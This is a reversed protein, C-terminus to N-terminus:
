STQKLSNALAEADKKLQKKIRTLQNSAWKANKKFFKGIGSPKCGNRSLHFIITDQTSLSEMLLDLLQGGEGDELYADIATRDVLAYSPAEMCVSPLPTRNGSGVMNGNDDLEGSAGKFCRSRKSTLIEEDPLECERHRVAKRIEDVAENKIIRNAWSSFKSKGHFNRLNRWVKITALQTAESLDVRQAYGGSILVRKAYRHTEALLANLSQENPAAAYETYRANLAGKNNAPTKEVSEAPKEEPDSNENEFEDLHLHETEEFEISRFNESIFAPEGDEDDILVVAYDKEDQVLEGHV